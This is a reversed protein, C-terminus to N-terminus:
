SNKTKYIRPKGDSSLYLLTSIIRKLWIEILKFPLLSITMLIYTDYNVNLFTNVLYLCTLKLRICSLVDRSLVYWAMKQCGPCVDWAMKAAGSLVDWAM